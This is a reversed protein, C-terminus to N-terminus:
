RPKPGVIELLRAWTQADNDKKVVCVKIRHPGEGHACSHAIEGVVDTCAVYGHIFFQPTPARVGASVTDWRLGSLGDFPVTAIRWDNWQRRIRVHNM